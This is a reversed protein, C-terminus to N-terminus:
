FNTRLISLLMIVCPSSREGKFRPFLELGGGFCRGQNNTTRTLQISAM